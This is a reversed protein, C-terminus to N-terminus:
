VVGLVPKLNKVAALSEVLSYAGGEPLTGQNLATLNMLLTIHKGM